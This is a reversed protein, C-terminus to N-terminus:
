ENEKIMPKTQEIKDNVIRVVARTSITAGSIADVENALRAKKNVIYKLNELVSKGIFQNEFSADSIKAGM